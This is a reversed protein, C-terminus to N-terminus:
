QINMINSPRVVGSNTPWFLNILHCKTLFIFLFSLEEKTPISSSWVLIDYVAGAGFNSVCSLFQM